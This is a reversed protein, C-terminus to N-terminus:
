RFRELQKPAIAHAFFLIRGREFAGPHHKFGTRLSTSSSNDTSAQIVQPGEEQIM